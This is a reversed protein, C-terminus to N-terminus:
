RSAERAAEALMAEQSLIRVHRDDAARPRLTGNACAGMSTFPGVRADEARVDRAAFPVAEAAPEVTSREESVDADRVAANVLKRIYDDNVYGGRPAEFVQGSERLGVLGVWEEFVHAASPILHITRADRGKPATLGEDLSYTHRIDVTRGTLDACSWDLAILEGVRAGTEIAARVLYRYVPPLPEAPAASQRRKDGRPKDIAALLRAIEADTFPPVGGAPRLGLPKRYVTVPNRTAYGEDVAATSM